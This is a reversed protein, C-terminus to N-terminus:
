IRKFIFVTPRDFVSTTEELAFVPDGLYTIKCFVDCPTEYVKKFGLKDSFLKRYFVNGHPFRKPNSLRSKMIRQSPLILYDFSPLLTSLEVEREPNADLDYFNFLTIHSFDQNFPVIGLDYVETLIRANNPVHEKAWRAAEIRTDPKRYVTTIYSALFVLQVAILFSVTAMRLWQKWRGLFDSLSLAVILYALPITPVMYRTWKAFFFSQSFFLLFYLTLLLSLPYIGRRFATYMIYVLSPILLITVVPNLLFPYIKAFQFLVPLTDTFEGTYFVPLTGIAVSGEHRISALFTQADILSFPSTIFFVAASVTLLLISKTLRQRKKVLFIAILPLPLLAASSVKISLLLALVVGALLVHKRTTKGKMSLCIAFLATSLFTLWIEFTGFHAFQTLGVSTACFFAALIGTGENRVRKGLVYCVVILLTSLLASYFRSVIIVTPFPVTATKAFLASTGYILYIPFSGYAFFHPNMQTPFRLQSVSSAINREDPHFFYPTGWDLNYFRLFIFPILVAALLLKHTVDRSM